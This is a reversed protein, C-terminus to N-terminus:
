GTSYLLYCAVALPLGIQELEPALTVKHGRRGLGSLEGVEVGRHRGLKERVHVDIQDVESYPFNVLRCIFKTQGIDRPSKGEPIGGIIYLNGGYAFLHGLIKLITERSGNGLEITSSFPNIKGDVRPSFYYNKADITTLVSDLNGDEELHAVIKGEQSIEARHPGDTRIVVYEIRKKATTIGREM